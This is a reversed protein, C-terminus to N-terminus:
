EKRPAVQHLSEDSPTGRSRDIFNEVFLESPLRNSKLEKMGIQECFWFTELSELALHKESTLEGMRIDYFDVVEVPVILPIM